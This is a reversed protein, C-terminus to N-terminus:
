YTKGNAYINKSNKAGAVPIADVSNSNGGGGGRPQVVPAARTNKQMVPPPTPEDFGEDDYEARAPAGVRKAVNGPKCSRQHVFLRDPAFRRGCNECEVLQSKSAQWAAENVADLDYAGSSSLNAGVPKVPTPRRMNRPLKANEIQWKELCQPEHIEISKTGYKRGKLCLNSILKINIQLKPKIYNAMQSVAYTVFLMSLSKQHRQHDIRTYIKLFTLIV